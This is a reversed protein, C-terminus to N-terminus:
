AETLVLDDRHIVQNCAGYGLSEAADRTHLGKIKEVDHRDFLVIGKAIKQTGFVVDVADGEVFNGQVQM